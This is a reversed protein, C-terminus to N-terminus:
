VILMEKRSCCMILPSVNGTNVDAGAAILENVCNVEGKTAAYALATKGDTDIVNIDTGAKLLTTVCKANVLAAIMLATCRGEIKNILRLM